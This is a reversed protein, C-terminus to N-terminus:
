LASIANYFYLLPGGCLLPSKQKKIEPKDEPGQEGRTIPEFGRYARADTPARIWWEYCHASRTEAYKNLYEMSFVIQRM